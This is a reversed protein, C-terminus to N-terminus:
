RGLIAVQRRGLKASLQEYLLKVSRFLDGLGAHEVSPSSDLDILMERQLQSLMKSREKELDSIVEYADLGEEPRLFRKVLGECAKAHALADSYARRLRPDVGAATWDMSIIELEPDAKNHQWPQSVQPEDVCENLLSLQQVLEELRSADAGSMNTFHIGMGVQPYSTRVEGKCFLGLGNVHLVIEVSAGRPLPTLTELYCGTISLDSVRGSTRKDSTLGRIEASGVCRYRSGRRGNDRHFVPLGNGNPAAAPKSEYAPATNLCGGFIFKSPELSHIGITADSGKHGVWVVRYRAKQAGHAMGIVDGAKLHCGAGKVRAGFRSFDVTEAELVFPKGNSAVGWMRIPLQMATRDERRRRM